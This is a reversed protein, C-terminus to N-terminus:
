EVNFCTVIIYEDVPYYEFIGVSMSAANQVFWNCLVATHCSVFTLM